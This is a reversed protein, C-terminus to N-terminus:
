NGLYSKDVTVSKTGIGLVGINLMHIKGELFMEEKINNAPEQCMIRFHLVTICVYIVLACTFM